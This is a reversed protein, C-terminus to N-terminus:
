VLTATFFVVTITQTDSQLLMIAFRLYQQMLFRIFPTNFRVLPLAKSRM